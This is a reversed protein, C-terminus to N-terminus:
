ISVLQVLHATLSGDKHGQANDIALGGNEERQPRGVQLIV